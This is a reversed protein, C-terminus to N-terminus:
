RRWTRENTRGDTRRDTHRDTWISCSPELHTSKWSIEYKLNGLFETSLTWTENFDSSFFPRLPPPVTCSLKQVNIFIDRQIRTLVPFKESLCKSFILICMKREFVGRGLGAGREFIAWNILYHPLIHHLRVPWLRCYPAACPRCRLCSCLCVRMIVM